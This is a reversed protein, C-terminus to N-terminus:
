VELQSCIEMGRGKLNYVQSEDESASMIINANKDKVTEFVPAFLPSTLDGNQVSESKDVNDRFATSSATVTEVFARFGIESGIFLYVETDNFILSRQGKRLSDRDSTLDFNFARLVKIIQKIIKSRSYTMKQRCQDLPFNTIRRQDKLHLFIQNHGNRHGKCFSSCIFQKNSRIPGCIQLEAVKDVCIRPLIRLGNIRSRFKVFAIKIESFVEKKTTQKLPTDKIPWRIIENHTSCLSENYTNQGFSCNKVNSLPFFRLRKIEFSIKAM